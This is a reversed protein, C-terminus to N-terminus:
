PMHGMHDDQATAFPTFRAQESQKGALTISVVAKMDPNSVYKAAGMLHNDGDPMLKATAKVKGVLITATGSAGATQIKQGNHDTVYVMIMSEKATNADKAVVLEYHNPGAMRLQGGHPAKVKDLTADDHAYAGAAGMLAGVLMVSMLFKKKMVQEKIYVGPEPGFM